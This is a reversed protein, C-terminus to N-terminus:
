TVENIQKVELDDGRQRPNAPSKIVQEFCRFGLVNKGAFTQAETLVNDLCIRATHHLKGPSTMSLVSNGPRM